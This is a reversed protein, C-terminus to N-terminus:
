PRPVHDEIGSAPNFEKEMRSLLFFAEAAANTILTGNMLERHQLPPERKLYYTRLDRMMESRDGTLNRALEWTMRDGSEMAEVLALLVADVSECITTRLEALASRDDLDALIECLGGLRM